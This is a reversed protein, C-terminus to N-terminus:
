EVEKNYEELIVKEFMDRAEQTIPHAVDHYVGDAGKINPMAIFLKEVGEIIRINNIIFCDDIAVAAIGKLRSDKKKLKYVKVQTIKM